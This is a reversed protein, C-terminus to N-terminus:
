RRRPAAGGTDPGFCSQRYAKELDKKASIRGRFGHQPSILKYADFEVPIRKQSPLLSRLEGRYQAEVAALLALRNAADRGNDGQVPEVDDLSGRRRHLYVVVAVGAACVALVGLGIYGPRYRHLLWRM